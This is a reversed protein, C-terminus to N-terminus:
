HSKSFKELVKGLEVETIFEGEPVQGRVKEVAEEKGGVFIIPLDRTKKLSRLWKATERGHSPLRTLYILVLDPLNEKILNGARSGEESETDVQWGRAQIAEAYAKAEEQNWHILFIKGKM